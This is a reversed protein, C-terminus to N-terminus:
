KINKGLVGRNIRNKTRKNLWMISEELKTIVIANERCATGSEQFSKLRDICINLLDEIFVGNVGNAVAGQQFHIASLIDQMDVSKILYSHPANYVKEDKLVLTHDTKHLDSDLSTFEGNILTNSREFIETPCWSTYGDVYVVKYGTFDKDTENERDMFKNFEYLTMPEAKVMKTGIYRNM